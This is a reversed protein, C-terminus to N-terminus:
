GGPGPARAVVQTRFERLWAKVAGANGPGMRILTKRGWSEAELAPDAYQYLVEPREVEYPPSIEPAGLLHDIIDVLRDNFYDEGAGLEAYAEQFLPFHRFYLRAAAETDVRQLTAVFSEYRATNAPNWLLTDGDEMVAPLGPIHRVPRLRMPIAPGDLSNIFVVTREIIREPVLWTALADDDVLGSLIDLVTDDSEELPPLPAPEPRPDFEDEILEPPEPEPVPHRIEPPPEEIPVIAPVVDPIEDIQRQNYWWVVLALVLIVVLATFLRSLMSM